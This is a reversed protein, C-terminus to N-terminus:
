LAIFIIRKIKTETEDELNRLKQAINMCKERQKTTETDKVKKKRERDYEETTRECEEYVKCYKNYLNEIIFDDDIEFAIDEDDIGKKKLDKIYKKVYDQRFRLSILNVFENFAEGGTFHSKGERTIDELSKLFSFWNTKNQEM